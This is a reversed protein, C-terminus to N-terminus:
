WVIIIYVICSLMRVYVLKMFACINICEGGQVLILAMDSDTTNFDTGPPAGVRCVYTGSDSVTANYITISSTVTRPTTTQATTIHSTEM